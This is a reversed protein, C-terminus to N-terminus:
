QLVLIPSFLPTNRIPEKKMSSKLFQNEHMDTHCCRKDQETPKRLSPSQWARPTSAPTDQHKDAEWYKKRRGGFAPHHLSNSLSGFVSILIKNTHSSQGPLGFLRWDWRRSEALWWPARRPQRMRVPQQLFLNLNEGGEPVILRGNLTKISSYSCLIDAGGDTGGLDATVRSWAVQTLLCLKVEAQWLVKLM